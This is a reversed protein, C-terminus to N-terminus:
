AGLLKSFFSTKGQVTKVGSIKRGLAATRLFFRNRSKLALPMRQARINKRVEGDNLLVGILEVPTKLFKIVLANLRDFTEIGERDSGVMNVLVAIERNGREYLVKVMAYADALSTPDASMVLIVKDANSAFQIVTSGIGAGTDTVMYDYRSELNLFDHRLKELRAADINALDELGSAGPIIDVACPGKLVIDELECEGSVVHSLTKKPAIGTLIHVNALGLDADLLLVRKNLASLSASLVLSITSKGVGGKGSTVALTKCRQLTTHRTQFNVRSEGRIIERSKVIERLKQAQDNM